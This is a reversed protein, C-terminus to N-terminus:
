PLPALERKPAPASMAITANQLLLASVVLALSAALRRITTGGTRVRLPSRGTM